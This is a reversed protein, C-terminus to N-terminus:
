HEKGFKNVVWTKGIQRAGQLILPQRNKSKKWDLLKSEIDRKIYINM